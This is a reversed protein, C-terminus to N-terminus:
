EQFRVKLEVDILIRTGGAYVQEVNERAAEAAAAVNDVM